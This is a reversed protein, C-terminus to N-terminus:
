SWSSHTKKGDTVVNVSARGKGAWLKEKFQNDWRESDRKGGWQPPEGRFWPGMVRGRSFLGKLRICAARCSAEVRSLWKLWVFSERPVRGWFCPLSLLPYLRMRPMCVELHLMYITYFINYLLLVVLWHVPFVSATLFTAKPILPSLYEIRTMEIQVVLHQYIESVHAKSSYIM